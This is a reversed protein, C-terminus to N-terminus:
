FDVKINIKTNKLKIKEKWIFNYPLVVEVTEEGDFGVSFIIIQVIIKWFFWAM